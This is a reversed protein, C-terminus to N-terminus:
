GSPLDCSLLTAPWPGHAEDITLVHATEADARTERVYVSPDAVLYKKM